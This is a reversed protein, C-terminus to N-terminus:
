FGHLPEGPPRVSVSNSKNIGGQASNVLFCTYKGITDETIPFELRTNTSNLKSRGLGITCTYSITGGDRRWGVDAQPFEPEHPLVPHTCVLIVTDGYCQTGGTPTSLSLGATVLIITHPIFLTCKQVIWM